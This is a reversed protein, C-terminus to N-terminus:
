PQAELNGTLHNARSLKASLKYVTCLSTTLLSACHPETIHIPHILTHTSTCSGFRALSARSESSQNGSNLSGLIGLDPEAQSLFGPLMRGWGQNQVLPGEPHGHPLDHSTPLRWVSADFISLNVVVEDAPVAQFLRRLTHLFHSHVPYPNHSPSQSM